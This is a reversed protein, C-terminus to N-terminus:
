NETEATDLLRDKNFKNSASKSKKMKKDKKDKNVDAM